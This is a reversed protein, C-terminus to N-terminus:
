AYIPPNLYQMRALTIPVKLEEPTRIQSGFTFSQQKTHKATTYKNHQTTDKTAVQNDGYTDRMLM